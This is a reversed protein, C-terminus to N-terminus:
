IMHLILNKETYPAWDDDNEIWNFIAYAAILWFAILAILLINFIKKKMMKDRLRIFKILNYWRTINFVIYDEKIINSVLFLFFLAIFFYFKIIYLKPLLFFLNNHKIFINIILHLM